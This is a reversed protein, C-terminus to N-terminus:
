KILIRRFSILCIFIKIFTISFHIQHSLLHLSSTNILHYSGGSTHSKDNLSGKMLIIQKFLIRFILYLINILGLFELYRYKKLFNRVGGANSTRGKGVQNGLEPTDIGPIICWIGIREINGVILQVM